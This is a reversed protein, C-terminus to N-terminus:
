KRGKMRRTKKRKKMGRMGMMGKEADREKDLAKMEGGKKKFM